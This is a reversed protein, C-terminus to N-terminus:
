HHLSMTMSQPTILKTATSNQLLISISSIAADARVNYRMCWSSPVFEHEMHNDKIRDVGLDYRTRSFNNGYSILEFKLPYNIGYAQLSILLLAPRRMMLKM